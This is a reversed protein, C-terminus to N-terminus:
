KCSSRVAPMSCERHDCAASYWALLTRDPTRESLRQLIGRRVAPTYQGQYPNQVFLSNAHWTNTLLSARVRLVHVDCCMDSARVSGAHADVCM